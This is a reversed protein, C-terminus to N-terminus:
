RLQLGIPLTDGLAQAEDAEEMEVVETLLRRWREPAGAQALEDAARKRLEEDLDRSRDGTMRALTVLAFSVGDVSRLNPTMLLQLWEAAHDRDVVNHGSGHLPWRAGIRGLAWAWPGRAKAPNKLRLTIWDGLQEKERLPLDELSAAVRVMEDLGELQIGKPKATPKVGETPIRRALHPKLLTWITNQRHEGLGGAIRRWLVWFENWNPQEAHFIVSENFLKFSQECRWEDLPYGFGPRLSYGLLQFFVREHDPSRRRRSAGALLTSWIERLVPLPWTERPGLVGDLSRVLQRVERPQVPPPKGGFVREVLARADAFRAPMSETVTVRNGTRSSRLEFELRWRDDSNNSVCGLELTGLETLSARLHVAVAGAKGVASKLLTHIPPLSHLEENVDVVDGPRDVRDSTTSYLPFQVPQGLTLTFPRGALDVVGGEEQGRPIVCIARLKAEPKAGALGIYFAHAAGGGIRRGLGRRSLGHAVAGRAVALELSGHGLLPIRPLAPWWSSVTNILHDTLTASNFVGGNLLIADPRPLGTETPDIGLSTFGAARHRALFAALHRTIAPDQAYPLGLEQLAVRGGPRAMPTATSNVAPFFGQLLIDRAEHQELEASFTSGLLRSGSGALVIRHLEPPEPGLLKEKAARAAQTLQHWQIASLKRGDTTLREELRRALAADMNDGGLMLHEGVAIRRLIVDAGSVAVEILTFDTTGGGVDIVLALRVGGLARDLHRRHATAFDYFAAQPEEVLLLKEIGARRAATVSLARAVEDFSAPVTLVVEQEAMPAQPHAHNWAAALHSLIQASAEVPSIKGTEPPAGWPLIDATRNVGPHCLWSKASAVLRGPVIAGQWRAFEGAILRPSDGWPLRASDAPLEHEGRVYLCSPLLSRTDLEGVRVLQPVPFNMVAADAGLALEVFALSSNTTGLDIGIIYAPDSM